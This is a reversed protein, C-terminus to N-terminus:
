WWGVSRSRYHLRQMSRYATQDSLEVGWLGSWRSLPREREDLGMMVVDRRATALSVALGNRGERTRVTGDKTRRARKLGGAARV